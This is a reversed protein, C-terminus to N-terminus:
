MIAMPGCDYLIFIASGNEYYVADATKMLPAHSSPEIHTEYYFAMPLKMPFFSCSEWQSVIMCFSFAPPMKVPVALSRRATSFLACSVM